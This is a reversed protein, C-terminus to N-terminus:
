HTLVQLRKSALIKRNPVRPSSGFPTELQVAVPQYEILRKISIVAHGLALPTVSPDYIGNQFIGYQCLFM